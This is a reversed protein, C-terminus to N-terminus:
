GSLCAELVDTIRESSLDGRRWWKWLVNGIEGFFLDPVVLGVGTDLLRVAALTHEEPLYWKVAVSADVVVRTM